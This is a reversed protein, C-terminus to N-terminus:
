DDDGASIAICVEPVPPAKAFVYALRDVEGMEFLLERLNGALALEIMQAVFSEHLVANRGQADGRM